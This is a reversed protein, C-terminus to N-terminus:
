SAIVWYPAGAETKAKQLGMREEPPVDRHLLQHIDTLLERADAYYGHGLLSPDIRSAEM